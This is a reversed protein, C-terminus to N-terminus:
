EGPTAHHKAHEGSADAKPKSVKKKPVKPKAPEPVVISSYDVGHKKCAAELEAASMMHVAEFHMPDRRAERYWNGWFLGFDACFDALPSLSSPTGRKAGATHQGNTGTNLDIATGYAHNSPTTSNDISRLALSGNNHDVIQGALGKAAVAKFFAIFQPAVRRHVRLPNLKPVEPVKVTVIYKAQWDVPETITLFRQTGSKNWAAGLVHSYQFEAGYLPDKTPSRSEIGAPKPPDPPPLPVPKKNKRADGKGKATTRHASKKAPANM